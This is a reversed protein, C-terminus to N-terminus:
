VVKSGVIQEEVAKKREKSPRLNKESAFKDFRESEEDSKSSSSIQNDCMLGAM